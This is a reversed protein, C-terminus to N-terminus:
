NTKPVNYFTGYNNVFKFESNTTGFTIEDALVRIPNKASSIKKIEDAYKNFMDSMNDTVYCVASSNTMDEVKILYLTKLSKYYSSDHKLLKFVFTKKASAYINLLSSETTNDNGLVMQDLYRCSINDYHQLVLAVNNEDCARVVAGVCQTLGTVMVKLKKYGKAMVEKKVFTRAMDLLKNYDHIMYPKIPGQYISLSTTKDIEGHRNSILSVLLYENNPDYDYVDKEVASYEIVNKKDEKEWLQERKDIKFFMKSTSELNKSKVMENYESLSFGLEKTWNRITSSSVDYDDALQKASIYENKDFMNEIKELCEKKREKVMNNNNGREGGTM